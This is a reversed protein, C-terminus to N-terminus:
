VVLLVPLSIFKLSKNASFQVIEYYYRHVLSYMVFAIIKQSGKFCEAHQPYKSRGKSTLHTMHPSQSIYSSLHSILIYLEIPTVVYQIGLLASIRLPNRHPWLRHNNSFRALVPLMHIYNAFLRNIYM